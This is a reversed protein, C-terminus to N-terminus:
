HSKTESILLGYKHLDSRMRRSADLTEKNNKFCRFVELQKIRKERERGRRRPSIRRMSSRRRGMRSWSRTMSRSQIRKREMVNRERERRLRNLKERLSELELGTKSIERERGRKTFVGM